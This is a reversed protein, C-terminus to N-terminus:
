IFWLDYILIRYNEIGSNYLDYIMFWFEIIRLIMFWVEIFRLIKVGTRGMLIM